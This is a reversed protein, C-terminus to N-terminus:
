FLPNADWADQAVQRRSSSSNGLFPGVTIWGRVKWHESSQTTSPDSRRCPILGLYGSVRCVCDVMTSPCLIRKRKVESEYGAVIRLGESGETWSIKDERESRGVVRASEIGVQRDSNHLRLELLQTQPAPLFCYCTLICGAFGVLGIWLNAAAAEFHGASTLPQPRGLM